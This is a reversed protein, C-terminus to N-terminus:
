YQLIINFHTKTPQTHHHSDSQDPELCPGNVKTIFKGTGLFPPCNLLEAIKLQKHLFSAPRQTHDLFRPFSSARAWQLSNRGLCILLCSPDTAFYLNRNKIVSFLAMDKQIWFLKTVTIVCNLSRIKIDLFKNIPCMSNLIQQQDHPICQNSNLSRNSQLHLM